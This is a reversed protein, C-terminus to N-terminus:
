AASGAEPSFYSLSVSDTRLRHSESDPLQKLRRLQHEATLRYQEAAGRLRAFDATGTVSSLAMNCYSM